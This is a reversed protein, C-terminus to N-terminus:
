GDGEVNERAATLVDLFSKDIARLDVPEVAGASEMERRVLAAHRLLARRMGGDPTNRVVIAIMSLLHIAVAPMARSAIRIQQFASDAMSDADPVAIIVRVKGEEDAHHGNHFERSGAFALAACLRDICTIATFPDNLSPSLARLAVEVLQDISFAVDQTPSRTQGIAVHELVWDVDGNSTEPHVEALRAGEILFNGPTRVFRVVAGRKAAAASLRAPEITDLYGDRPAAVVSVREPFDIAQSVNEHPARLLGEISGHLDRAVNAIIADAQISKSVHHIFYILVGLGILSAVIAVTVSLHPVYHDDENGRVTRLVLICYVFISTFTGLVIRNGRDDMFNRLLRPGFQQSALSLAVITISFVVGAVTIMSGAITALVQRAGDPSGAYIWWFLDSGPDIVDTDDAHGLAFALIISGTVMVSPVFWLSSRLAEIWQLLKARM